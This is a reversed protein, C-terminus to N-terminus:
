SHNQIGFILKENIKDKMESETTKLNLVYNWFYNAQLNKNLKWLIDAYHDNVIPDLPMLEVAKQLLKEAEEYRGILYMGWGLSDIIYPDDKKMNFALQLMEISKDLNINRELWSYALYNLVYPEKPRLSLSQVLDNESEQWLKLREYSMGRRYLIKSYVVNLRRLSAFPYDNAINNLVKTYYQVSEKYEDFDKYFNALDYYNQITPNKLESFSKNLFDIASETDETKNKIWVLRKKAYWDFVENNSNFKLYIQKSSQYDQLYFYNEALLTKNFTFDSNLYISLNLYFNSLTYDKESSYLNAILYFFESILHNSNRCNFIERVKNAKQEKLWLRTQHLLLNSELINVNKDKALIKLAEDKRNKSLLFNVYFFNYRTFNLTNPNVLKLFGEDIKKNDLYCNIFADRILVFNKYNPPISSLVTIQDYSPNEFVQVYSLLLQAILKEFNSFKKTQIISNFYGISKKYKKELFYNIGLLLNAHFFNINKTKLKKLYLFAQSIKQTQVLAFVLERNFQDHNNKLLSLNSLYKLALKNNNNNSSVIGLFYNSINKKSYFKNQNSSYVNFNSLFGFFILVYIFIKSLSSYM